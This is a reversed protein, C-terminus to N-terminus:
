IVNMKLLSILKTENHWKHYNISLLVNYWKKRLFEFVVNDQLRWSMNYFIILMMNTFAFFSKYCSACNDGRVAPDKM